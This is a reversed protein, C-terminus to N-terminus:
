ARGSSDSAANASSSCDREAAGAIEDAIAAVRQDDPFGEAIWRTEVARLAAAVAPGRDLGRAVLAGGSIPLRPPTWGNVAAPDAGALLM